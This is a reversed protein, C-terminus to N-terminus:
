QPGKLQPAADVPSYDTRQMRRLEHRSSALKEAYEAKWVQIREDAKLFAESCALAAYFLLDGAYTSLWTTAVTGSLGAPRKMFRATFPYSGAPTGAIWWQTENLESYYRPTTTVTAAVPWYDILYEYSRHFMQYTKGSVTFFLSRDAVYGAPKTVVQNNVFFAGTDTVDFIELDLDRLLKLEGLGIVTDLEAAFATGQDEVHSVLEAKLTAYTFTIPM